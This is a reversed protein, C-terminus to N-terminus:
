SETRGHRIELDALLLAHYTSRLQPCHLPRGGNEEEWPIGLLGLTGMEDLIARDFVEKEDRDKVTPALKKEAFDKALNAIDQQLESLKFDM